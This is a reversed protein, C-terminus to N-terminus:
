SRVGGDIRMLPYRSCYSVAAAGGFLFKGTDCAFELCIGTHNSAYHSWMLISDPHPTLCYIMWRAPIFNHFEPTFRLLFDKVFAPEALCREWMLTKEQATVPGHPELALIWETIKARETDNDVISLDFWPRCDWPDNLTSPDSCHIRRKTLLDILFNQNLPQYHYLRKLGAHAPLKYYMSDSEEGM